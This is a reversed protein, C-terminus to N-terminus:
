ENQLGARCSCQSEGGGRRSSCWGAVRQSGTRPWIASPARLGSGNGDGEAMSPSLAGVVGGALMLPPAAAGDNGLPLFSLCCARRGLLSVAFFIAAGRLAADATSLLSAMVAAVMLPLLLPPMTGAALGFCVLLRLPIYKGSVCMCAGDRTRPVRQKRRARLTVIIAVPLCSHQYFIQAPHRVQLAFRSFHPSSFGPHRFQLDLM